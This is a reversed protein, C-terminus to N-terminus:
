SVFPPARLSFSYMSYSLVHLANYFAVSEFYREPASIFFQQTPPTDAIFPAFDCIACHRETKHAHTNTETCCDDVIHIYPHVIGTVLPFLFLLLLFTALYNRLRLIM